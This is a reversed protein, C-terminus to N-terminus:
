AGEVCKLALLSWAEGDLFLFFQGKFTYVTDM